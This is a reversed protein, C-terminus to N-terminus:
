DLFLVVPRRAAKLSDLLVSLAISTEALDDAQTDHCALFCEGDQAFALGSWWAFLVGAEPPSKALKRLRSSLSTRTAQGDALVPRADAPVGLAALAAGFAAADSAAFPAAALGADQYKEIGVLFAAVNM